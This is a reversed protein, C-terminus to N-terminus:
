TRTTTRRLARLRDRLTSLLHVERRWGMPRRERRRNERQNLRAAAGGKLAELAQTGQRAWGGATVPPVVGRDHDGHVFPQVAEWM